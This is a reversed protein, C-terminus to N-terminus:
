CEFMSFKNMGFVGYDELSAKLRLRSLIQLLMGRCSSKEEEAIFM